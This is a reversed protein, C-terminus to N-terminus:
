RLMERAADIKQQRKKNLKELDTVQARLVANEKRLDDCSEVPEKLQEFLWEKTIMKGPCTKPSVDRHFYIESNPIKLKKQLERIAHLANKKTEGSWQKTDYNGVVEIGISRYNLKGAHIGDKRMDWMRWIGDEAIFIHPAANWGLKEYYRKMGEMTRQGKWDKVDPKWTHHIVIKNAPLYGFFKQIVYQTFEGRDFHKIFNKM